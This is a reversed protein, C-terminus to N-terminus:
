LLNGSYAPRCTYSDKWLDVISATRGPEDDPLAPAPVATVPTPMAIAAAITLGVLMKKITGKRM